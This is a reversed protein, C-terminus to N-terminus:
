SNLNRMVDVHSEREGGDLIESHSMSWYIKTAHLLLIRPFSIEVREGDLRLTRGFILITGM